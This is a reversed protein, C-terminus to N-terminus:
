LEKFEIEEIKFESHEEYIIAIALDRNFGEAILNEVLPKKSYAKILGNLKHYLVFIKM